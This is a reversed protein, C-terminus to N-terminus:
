NETKKSEAQYVFKFENDYEGYYDPGYTHGILMYLGGQVRRDITPECVCTNDSVEQIMSLCDGCNCSKRKLLKMSQRFGYQTENMFASESYRYFLGKCKQKIETETIKINKFM